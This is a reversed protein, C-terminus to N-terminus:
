PRVQKFFAKLFTSTVLGTLLCGIYIFFGDCNLYVFLIPLAIAQVNFLSNFPLLYLTLFLNDVNHLYNNISNFVKM